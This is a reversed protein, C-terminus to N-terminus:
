EPRDPLLGSQQLLFVRNSFIASQTNIGHQKHTGSDKALYEESPMEFLLYSNSLPTNGIILEIFRDGKQRSFQLAIGMSM